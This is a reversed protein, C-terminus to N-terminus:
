LEKLLFINDVKKNSSNISIIKLNYSRNEVIKNIFENSQNQTSIINGSKSDIKLVALHDYKKGISSM